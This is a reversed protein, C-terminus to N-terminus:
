SDFDGSRTIMRFTISSSGSTTVCPRVAAGSASARRTCRTCGWTSSPFSTLLSKKFHPFCVQFIKSRWAELNTRHDPEEKSRSQSHNLMTLTKQNYLNTLNHQYSSKRTAREREREALPQRTLTLLLLLTYGWRTVIKVSQIYLYLPRLRVSKKYM